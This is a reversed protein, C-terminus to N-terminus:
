SECIEYSVSEDLLRNLEKILTRRMEEIHALSGMSKRSFADAIVNV